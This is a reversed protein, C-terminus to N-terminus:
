NYFIKNKLSASKVMDMCTLQEAFHTEDIYPFKYESLDTVKTSDVVDVGSGGNEVPVNTVRAPSEAVGTHCWYTFVPFM